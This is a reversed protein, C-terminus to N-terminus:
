RPRRAGPVGSASRRTEWFEIARSVTSIEAAYGLFMMMLEVVTGGFLFLRSLCVIQLRGRDVGATEAVSIVAAVKEPRQTLCGAMIRTAKATKQALTPSTAGGLTQTEGGTPPYVAPWFERLFANAASQCARMQGLIEEPISDDAKCGCTDLRAAVNQTM